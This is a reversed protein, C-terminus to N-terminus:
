FIIAHTTNLHGLLTATLKSPATTSGSVGQWSLNYRGQKPIDNILVLAPEYPPLPADLKPPLNNIASDGIESFDGPSNNNIDDMDMNTMNPNNIRFFITVFSPALDKDPSSLEKIMAPTDLM